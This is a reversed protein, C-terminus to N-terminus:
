ASRGAVWREEAGEGEEIKLRSKMYSVYTKTEEMSM